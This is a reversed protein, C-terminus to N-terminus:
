SQKTSSPIKAATPESSPAQSCPAWCPRSLLALAPPVESGEQPDQCGWLCLRQLM